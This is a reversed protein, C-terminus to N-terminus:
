LRRLTRGLVSIGREERYQAHCWPQQPTFRHAGRSLASSFTEVHRDHGGIGLGQVPKLRIQTLRTDIGPTGALDLAASRHIWLRAGDDEKGIFEGGVSDKALYSTKTL